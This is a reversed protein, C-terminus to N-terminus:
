RDRQRSSMKQKQREQELGEIYGRIGLRMKDFDKALAEIEDGSEISVPEKYNGKSIRAAAQQM